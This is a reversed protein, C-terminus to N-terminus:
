EDLDVFEMYRHRVAGNGLVAVDGFQLIDTGFKGGKVVAFLGGGRALVFLSADHGLSDPRVGEGLVRQDERRMPLESGLSTMFAAYHPGLLRKLDVRLPSTAGLTTLRHGVLASLQDDKLRHRVLRSAADPSAIAAAAGRPLLPGSSMLLAGIFFRRRM